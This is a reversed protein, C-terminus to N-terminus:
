SAHRHPIDFEDGFADAREATRSGVAIAHADHTEALGHAFEHAIRGTAAIVWCIRATAM